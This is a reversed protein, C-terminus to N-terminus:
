FLLTWKTKWYRLPACLFIHDGFFWCSSAICLHPHLTPHTYGGWRVWEPARNLQNAGDQFWDLFFFCFVLYTGNNSGSVAGVGLGNAGVQGNGTGVAAGIRNM